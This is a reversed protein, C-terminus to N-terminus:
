FVYYLYILMYQNTTQFMYKGYYIPYDKGMSPPQLWSHYTEQPKASPSCIPILLNQAVVLGKSGSISWTKMWPLIYNRQNVWIYINGLIYIYINICMCMFVLCIVIYECVHRLKKKLRAKSGRLTPGVPGPVEPPVLSIESSFFELDGNDISIDHYDHYKGMFFPSKGYNFSKIYKDISLYWSIKGLPSWFRFVLWGDQRM